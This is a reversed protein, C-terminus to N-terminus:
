AHAKALTELILPIDAEWTSDHRGDAGADIM